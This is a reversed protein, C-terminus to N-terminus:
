FILPPYKAGGNSYFGYTQTDTIFDYISAAVALVILGIFLVGIAILAISITMGVSNIM